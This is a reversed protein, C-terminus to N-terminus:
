DVLLSALSVSRGRIGHMFADYAFIAVVIVTFYLLFIRIFSSTNTSRILTTGPAPASTTSLKHVRFVPSIQRIFSSPWSSAHSVASLVGNRATILGKVAANISSTAAWSLSRCSVLVAKSTQLIITRYIHALCACGMRASATTSSVIWIFVAKVGSTALFVTAKASTTMRLTAFKTLSAAWVMTTKAFSAISLSVGKTLYWSWDASAIATAVIRQVVTIASSLLVHLASNTTRFVSLVMSTSFGAMSQCVSIVKSCALSLVYKTGFAINAILSTALRWATPVIQFVFFTVYDLARGVLLAFTRYAVASMTSLYGPVKALFATLYRHSATSLTAIHRAALRLYFPATKWFTVAVRRGVAFFPTSVVCLVLRDFASVSPQHLLDYVNDAPFLTNMVQGFCTHFALCELLLRYDDGVTPPNPLLFAITVTLALMVQKLATEVDLPSLLHDVVVHSGTSAILLDKSLRLAKFVISGAM